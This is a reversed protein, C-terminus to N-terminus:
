ILGEITLSCYSITELALDESFDKFFGYVTLSDFGDEGIWLAPRARLGAVTRQIGDVARTEILSRITMKKAWGREVVTTVGFDDTSKRSFDTIGISPGTETIGLDVVKGVLLTGVAVPGSPNNGTIIVRVHANAYSPLNNIVLSSVRGTEASFYTYWDAIVGGSANTSHTEDFLTTGDVTVIVRVTDATTDLVALSNARGPALTIDISGTGISQTGVAEDLMAWRNTPGIDVWYAKDGAAPDHGVNADVVSEYLRHTTTSTVHAGKAYSTGGAWAPYGSQPEALSSSLLSATTAPTPILVKM